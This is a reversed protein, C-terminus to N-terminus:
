WMDIVMVEFYKANCQRMLSLVTCCLISMKKWKAFYFTQFTDNIGSM